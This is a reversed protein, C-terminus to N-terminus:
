SDTTPTTRRRGTRPEVQDVLSALCLLVLLAKAQKPEVKPSSQLATARTRKVKMLDWLANFREAALAKTGLDAPMTKGDTHFCMWDPEDLLERVMAGRIRLHRTRWSGAESQCVSIAAQSDSYITKRVATASAELDVMIEAMLQEVSKMCVTLECIAVLESEATSLTVFPKRSSTWAILGGSAMIMVSQQSREATPAFSADSYGDLMPGGGSTKAEKGPVFSSSYMLGGGPYRRLYRLLHGGRYVAEKPSRSIAQSLVNTAYVLEPRCRGALWQLEGAMVQAARIYDSANEDEKIVFDEPKVQLPAPVEEQTLMLGEEVKKIEFGNFSVDDWQPETCKWTRRFMAAVESAVEDEGVILLDDVYCIVAGARRSGVLVYWLSGDVKSQVLTVKGEQTKGSMQAMTKNRYVEWSRPSTVMGYLAKKVRWVTEKCVGGLLFMKPVMVLTPRSEQFLLPALLFATRVDIVCVRWNRLAVERLLLRILVGDAGAAYKQAKTFCQGLFNGCIVARTKLRGTFAKITHVTKGPVLDFEKGEKRWLELTEEPFPEVADNERVLAEYEDVMSPVWRPLEKRVVENPITKTHLPADEEGELVESKKLVWTQDEDQLVQLARLTEELDARGVSWRHLPGHVVEGEEGRRLIHEREVYEEQVLALRM